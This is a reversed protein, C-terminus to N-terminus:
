KKFFTEPVDVSYLVTIILLTGSPFIAVGLFFLNKVQFRLFPGSKDHNNSLCIIQRYLCFLDNIFDWQTPLHLLKGLLKYSAV